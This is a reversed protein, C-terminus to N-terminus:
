ANRSTRDVVLEPHQRVFTNTVLCTFCVPQHSALTEDIREAPVQAWDITVREPTMLGPKRTAWDIEGIPNRCLTCSKGEYWKALINRVLCAEGAEAIQALCQQGCNQKEPWRTCANLKLDRGLAARGADVEVGAKQHNEPCTVVRPGKVQFYSRAMRVAFYVLALAIAAAVLLGASPM